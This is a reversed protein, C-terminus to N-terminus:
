YTFLGSFVVANVMMGLKISLQIYSLWRFAAISLRPVVECSVYKIQFFMYESWKPSSIFVFNLWM